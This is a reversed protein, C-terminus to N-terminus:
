SASLHAAGGRRRTTRRLFEIGTFCNRGIMSERMARVNVGHAPRAAFRLCIALVCNKKRCPLTKKRRLHSRQRIGHFPYGAVIRRFDGCIQWAATLNESPM